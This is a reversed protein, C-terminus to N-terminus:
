QSFNIRRIERAQECTCYLWGDHHMGCGQLKEHAAILAIMGPECTAPRKAENWFEVARVYTEALPGRAQCTPCQIRAGKQNFVSSLSDALCFPCPRATRPKRQGVRGERDPPNM